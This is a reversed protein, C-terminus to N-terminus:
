YKRALRARRPDTPARWERRRRDVTRGSSNLRSDTKWPQKSEQPKQPQLQTEFENPFMVPEIEDKKPSWVHKRKEEPDLPKKPPNIISEIETNLLSLAERVVYSDNVNKRRTMQRHKGKGTYEYAKGNMAKDQLDDFFRKMKMLDEEERDTLWVNINPM